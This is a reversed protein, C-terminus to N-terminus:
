LESKKIVIFNIKNDIVNTCYIKNLNYGKKILGYKLKLRCKYCPLVTMFKNFSKNIRFILVNVKKKKKTYKLKYIADEEAHISNSFVNKNFKNYINYGYSYTINKNFIICGIYKHGNYDNKVSRVDKYKNLLDRIYLNMNVM